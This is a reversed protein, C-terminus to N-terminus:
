QKLQSLFHFSYLESIDVAGLSFDNMQIRDSRGSIEQYISSFFNLRTITVEGSEGM